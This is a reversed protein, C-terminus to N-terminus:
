PPLHGLRQNACLNRALRFRDCFQLWDSAPQDLHRGNLVFDGFQQYFDSIESRNQDTAAEAKVLPLAKEFVQLARVRDRPTSDVYQGRGSNNGRYYKGAIVFGYHQNIIWETGIAKLGRWNQAHVKEAEELYADVEADRQLNRYCNNVQTIDHSLRPGTNEGNLALPRYLALAEKFNGEAFLKDAKARQDVIAPPEASLQMVGWLGLVLALALGLRIRMISEWCVDELCRM